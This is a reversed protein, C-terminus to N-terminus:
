FLRTEFSKFNQEERKRRFNPNRRKVIMKTHALAFPKGADPWWTKELFFTKKAGGEQSKENRTDAQQEGVEQNSKANLVGFTTERM